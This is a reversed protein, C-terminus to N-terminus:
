KSKDCKANRLENNIEEKAKLFRKDRMELERDKYKHKPALTEKELKFNSISEEIDKYHIDGLGNLANKIELPYLFIRLAELGKKKM